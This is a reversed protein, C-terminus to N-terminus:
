SPHGDLWSVGKEADRRGSAKHGRRKELMNIGEYMENLKTEKPRKHGSPQPEVDSFNASYMPSISSTHPALVACQMPSLSSTHPALVACHVDLLLCPFDVLPLLVM